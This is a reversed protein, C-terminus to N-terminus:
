AKRMSIYESITPEEIGPISFDINGEEVAIEYEQKYWANLRASNVTKLAGEAGTESLYDWFMDWQEPSSPLKVSTRRGISFSGHENKFSDLDADEMAQLLSRETKKLDANMEKKKNDIDRISDKLQRYTASLEALTM